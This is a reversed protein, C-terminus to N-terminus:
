GQAQTEKLHLCAGKGLVGVLEPVDAGHGGPGLDVLAEDSHVLCLHTSHAPPSQEAVCRREEVAGHTLKQAAGPTPVGDCGNTVGQQSHSPLGQGNLHQQSSSLEQRTNARFGIGFHGNRAFMVKGMDQRVM